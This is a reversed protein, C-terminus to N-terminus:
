KNKLEKRQHVKKNKFYINPIRSLFRYFINKTINQMKLFITIFFSRKM